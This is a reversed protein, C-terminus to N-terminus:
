PFVVHEVEGRLRTELGGTLSPAPLILLTLSGESRMAALYDGSWSGNALNKTLRVVGQGRRVGIVHLNGQTDTAAAPSFDELHTDVAGLAPCEPAFAGATSTRRSSICLRDDTGRYAAYVAGEASGNISVAVSVGDSWPVNVGEGIATSPQLGLRGKNQVREYTSWSVLRSDRSVATTHEKGIVTFRGTSRSHFVSPASGLSMPGMNSAAEGNFTLSEANRNSEYSEPQHLVIMRLHGEFADDDRSFVAIKESGSAESYVVANPSYWIGNLPLAFGGEMGAEGGRGVFYFLRTTRPFGFPSNVFAFVLGNGLVVASPSDSIELDGRLSSQRCASAETLQAPCYVYALRDRDNRYFLHILDGAANKQHVAAIRGRARAVSMLDFCRYTESGKDSAGSCIQVVGNRDRAVAVLTDSASPVAGTQHAGALLAPSGESIADRPIDATEVPRIPSSDGNNSTISDVAGPRLGEPLRGTVVDGVAPPILSVPARDFDEPLGGNLVDGVVPPNVPTAEQGEPRRPAEPGIRPTENQAVDGTRDTEPTERDAVETPRDEEETDSDNESEPRAEPSVEGETRGVIPLGKTGDGPQSSYYECGTGLAALLLGMLVIKSTKM